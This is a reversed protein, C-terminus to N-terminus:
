VGFETDIKGQSGSKVQDKGRIEIQGRLEGERLEPNRGCV